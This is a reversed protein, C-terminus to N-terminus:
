VGRSSPHTSPWARSDDRSLTRQRPFFLQNLAFFPAVFEITGTISESKELGRLLRPTRPIIGRESSVDFRVRAVKQRLRFPEFFIEIGRSHRILQCAPPFRRRRAQAHTPPHVGSPHQFRIEAVRAKPTGIGVANHVHRRNVTKRPLTSIGFHPPTQPVASKPPVAAGGTVM